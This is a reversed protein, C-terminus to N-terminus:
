NKEEQEEGETEKRKAEERWISVFLLLLEGDKAWTRVDQILLPAAVFYPVDKSSLIERAVEAQRGGEM